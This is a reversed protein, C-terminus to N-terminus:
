VEKHLVTESKIKSHLPPSHQTFFAKKPLEWEMHSYHDHHCSPKEQPVAQHSLPHVCGVTTKTKAKICFSDQIKEFYWDSYISFYWLFLICQSDLKKKLTSIIWLDLKACLPSNFGMKGEFVCFRQHDGKIDLGSVRM